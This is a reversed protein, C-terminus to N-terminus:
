VALPAASCRRGNEYDDAEFERSALIHVRLSDVVRPFQVLHTANEVYVIFLLGYRNRNRICIQRAVRRPRGAVSSKGGATRCASATPSINPLGADAGSPAQALAIRIRPG